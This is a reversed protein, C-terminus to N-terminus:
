QRYKLSYLAALFSYNDYCPVHTVCLIKSSQYVNSILFPVTHLYLLKRQDTWQATTDDAVRRLSHCRVNVKRHHPWYVCPTQTCAPWTLLFQSTSLNTLKKTSHNEIPKM